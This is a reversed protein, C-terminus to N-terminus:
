AARAVSDSKGKQRTETGLALQLLENMKTTITATAAGIMGDVIGELASGASGHIRDTEDRVQARVGRVARGTAATTSLLLGAGFAIGVLTLPHEDVIRHPDVKHELAVITSGIQARTAEIQRRIEQSSEAM